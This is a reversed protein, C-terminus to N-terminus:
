AAVHVVAPCLTKKLDMTAIAAAIALQENICEFLQLSPVPLLVHAAQVAM